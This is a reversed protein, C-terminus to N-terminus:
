KKPRHTTHCEGCSMRISGLAANVGKTDKKDTAEAVAKTNDIYQRTLKEWSKEDGMKPKNKVLADALIGLDKATKQADDWKGGKAAGAIKDLYGDTKTHAKKMIDSISPLDYKKEKDKQAATALAGVTVLLALIGLAAGLSVRILKRVM